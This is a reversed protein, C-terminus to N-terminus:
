PLHQAHVNIVRARVAVVDLWNRAVYELGMEDFTQRIGKKLSASAKDLPVGPMTVEIFDEFDSIDQWGDIPVQVADIEQKVVVLGHNDLLLRYQDTTLHKRAEVKEEPQRRYLGISFERVDARFVLEQFVLENRWRVSM